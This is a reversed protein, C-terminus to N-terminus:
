RTLFRWCVCIIKLRVHVLFVKTHQMCFSFESVQLKYPRKRPVQEFMEHFGMYVVPDNEIFLKFDQIVPDWTSADFSLKDLEAIRRALWVAQRDRTFWSRVNGM